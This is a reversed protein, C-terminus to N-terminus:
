PLADGSGVKFEPGIKQPDGVCRCCNTLRVGLRVKLTGDGSTACCSMSGGPLFSLANTPGHSPRWVTREYVKLHDWVAVQVCHTQVPIGSTDAQGIIVSSYLGPRSKFILGARQSM